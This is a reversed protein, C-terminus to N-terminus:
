HYDIIEVRHANGELWEFCIRYRNNIRISYQGKRNGKLLELHNSSPIRLTEIDTAADILRLKRRALNHLNAPLQIKKRFEGAWISETEQDRFSVIM